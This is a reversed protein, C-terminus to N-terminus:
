KLLTLKCIETSYDTILRAIYLGSPLDEARLLFNHGGPQLVGPMYSGALRGCIDYLRIEVNTSQSLAFQLSATANFPNPAVTLAMTKAPTVEEDIGVTRRSVRLEGQIFGEWTYYYTFAVATGSSDITISFVDGTYVEFIPDWRLTNINSNLAQPQDWSDGDRYSVYAFFHLPNPERLSTFYLVRGDASIAPEIQRGTLNVPEPLPEAITWEGNDFASRYILGIYDEYGDPDDNRFFFMESEDLPLSAGFENAATNIADGVNVPAGWASDEWSSCWIDFAGYGGPRDSSFYLKDKSYTVFPSYNDAGEINIEAGPVETTDWGDVPLMFLDYEGDGFLEPVEFYLHETGYFTPNAILVMCGAIYYSWDAPGWNEQAATTAALCCIVALALFYRACGKM